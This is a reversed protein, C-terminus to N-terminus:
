VVVSLFRCAGPVVLRCPDAVGDILQQFLLRLLLRLELAPASGECDLAGEVFDAAPGIIEVSCSGRASAFSSETSMCSDMDSLFRACVMAAFMFFFCSSEDESVVLFILYAPPPSTAPFADMILHARINKRMESTAPNKPKVLTAAPARPMALTNNMMASTIKRIM